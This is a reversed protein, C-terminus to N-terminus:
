CKMETKQLTHLQMFEVPEIIRTILIMQNM